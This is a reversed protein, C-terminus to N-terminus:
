QASRPSLRWTVAPAIQRFWTIARVASLVTLSFCIWVFLVYSLLATFATSFLSAVLPTAGACVTQNGLLVWGTSPSTLMVAVAHSTLQLHIVFHEIEFIVRDLFSADPSISGHSSALAPTAILGFLLILAAKFYKM